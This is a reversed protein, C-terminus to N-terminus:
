LVAYITVAPSLTIVIIFYYFLSIFFYLFDNYKGFNFFTFSFDTYNVLNYATKSRRDAGHCFAVDKKEIEIALPRLKEDNGGYVLRLSLLTLIEM